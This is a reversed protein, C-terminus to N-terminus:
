EVEVVDAKYHELARKMADNMPPPNTLADMLAQQDEKALHLIRMTEDHQKIARQAHEYAIQTVFDSMTRGTLQSALKITEHIHKPVRVELRATTTAM